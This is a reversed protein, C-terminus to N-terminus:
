KYKGIPHLVINRLIPIVTFWFQSIEMDQEMKDREWVINQLTNSLNSKTGLYLKYFDKQIVKQEIIISPRKGYPYAFYNSDIDFIKKLIDKSNILEEMIENEELRSFDPHSCSHSGISYGQKLLEKIQNNSMYPKNEELYENLPQLGALSWAYNAIEDKIIMPWQESSRILDKIDKSVRYKNSIEVCIGQENKETVKSKILHIKNNWMLDNNDLCNSILFLTAKINFKEFIPAINTYNEKFGDDTTFAITKIANVKNRILYVAEDLSIFKYRHQVYWDLQDKLTKKNCLNKKYYYPIQSDDSVVHYYVIRPLNSKFKLLSSQVFSTNFIKFLIHKM